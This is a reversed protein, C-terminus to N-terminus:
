AEGEKRMKAYCEVCCGFAAEMLEYMKMEECVPCEKRKGMSINRILKPVYPGKKKWPNYLRNRSRM